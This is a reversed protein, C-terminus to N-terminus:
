FGRQRHDAGFAIRGGGDVIKTRGGAHGFAREKVVKITLLRQRDGGGVV